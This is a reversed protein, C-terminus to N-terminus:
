GRKLISVTSRRPRDAKPRSPVVRDLIPYMIAWEAFMVSPFVILPVKGASWLAGAYVLVHTAFLMALVRWFRPRRWHRRYWRVPYGFTVATFALFAVWKIDIQSEAPVYLAAYVAYVVCVLGVAVYVLVELVRRM